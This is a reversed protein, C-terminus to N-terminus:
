NAPYRRFDSYEYTVDVRKWGLLLLRVDARVELQTPFWLTDLVPRRVMQLTAGPQVRAVVGWGSTLTDVSELEVKAIEYDTEDVWFRGRAKSLIRGVETTAPVGPRPTLELAVSARGDVPARPGVRFQVVRLVDDIVRDLARQEDLRRATERAPDFAGEHQRAAFAERARREQARRLRAAEDAPLPVGNREILRAFGDGDRFNPLVESLRTTEAIVRGARDRERQTERERYCVRRMSTEDVDLRHRVRAILGPLDDPASQRAAAHVAASEGVVLGFAAASALSLGVRFSLM